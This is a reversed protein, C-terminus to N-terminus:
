PLRTYTQLLCLVLTVWSQLEAPRHPLPALPYLSSALSYNLPHLIVDLNFLSSFLSFNSPLSNLSSFIKVLSYFLHVSFFHHITTLLQSASVSFNSCDWLVCVKVYFPPFYWLPTTHKRLTLLTYHWLPSVPRFASSPATNHKAGWDHRVSQWGM